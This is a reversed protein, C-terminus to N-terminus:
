GAGSTLFFGPSNASTKKNNIVAAAAVMITVTSMVKVRDAGAYM